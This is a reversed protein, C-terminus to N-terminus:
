TGFRYIQQKGYFREICMLCAFICFFIWIQLNEKFFNVFIKM